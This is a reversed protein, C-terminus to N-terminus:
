ATAREKSAIELLATVLGKLKKVEDYMKSNLIPALTELEYYTSYVHALDPNALEFNGAILEALKRSQELYAIQADMADAILWIKHQKEQM